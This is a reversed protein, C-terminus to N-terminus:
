FKMKYKQEFETFFQSLSIEEKKCIKLLTQFPLNYGESSVIKTITTTALNCEYAYKTMSVLEGNSDRRGIIWKEAIFICMNKFILEDDTNISQKKKDDM